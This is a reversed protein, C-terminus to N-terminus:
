DKEKSSAPHNAQSPEQAGSYQALVQRCLAQCAQQVRPPYLIQAKDGFGIIWSFFMPSEAVDVTFVFHDEGDPFLLIGSGFRDVVVNTLSRHFRLKVAVTEGNFMHFRKQAYANLAEGTLEPCPERRQPLLQIDAMRDVRYSTVGHRPSLALLYCNENDQYIGYPSATYDKERFHPKGDIGWDFYRFSIQRNQVIAEQISDVHYYISQNMSKIRGAVVVNRCVQEAEQHSTLTCLKQILELSKEETLFRSSQVAAVLLKLEPLQFAREGIYYGGNKGRYTLIDVGFAQLAAIDSYVTKRDCRIGRRQLMQILEAARVPHDQHSNKQLYDLIYLIKLKQNDSKAM